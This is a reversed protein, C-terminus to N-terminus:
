EVGMRFSFFSINRFCYLVTQKSFFKYSENINQFGVKVEVIIYKKAKEKITIDNCWPLFGPYKKVDAILNYIKKVPHSIIKNKKFSVM